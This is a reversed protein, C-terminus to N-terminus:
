DKMRNGTVASVTVDAVVNDDLDKAEDDTVLDRSMVAVVGRSRRQAETEGGGPNQRLVIEGDHNIRHKVTRTM